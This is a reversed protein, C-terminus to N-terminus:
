AKGRKALQASARRLEDTLQEASPLLTQYRAALVKNPLGELAYHAQAAGKQSCLIIGVPPNEGERTWHAKAYNLYMHMQGADAHSFKGLKLDILVLCQLSRHYFVLDVRFWEDDLRLRKQRGVFAFDDGLELLFDELRHILAEELDSESYEDKLDLFELVYPDKVIDALGMSDEAKAVAGKSLMAKKNKSLLSREFFQSDIQRKLQRVSWGGRLAEHEYFQRAKEDAVSLLCVYASWPLPFARALNQLTLEATLTQRIPALTQTALAKRPPTKSISEIEFKASLTQLIKESPWGIHFARMQALNRVGFGRGFEATLDVALQRLLQEGYAARRKGKQEAELIRRGVEWYSATMVANVSRVATTRAQRLLDAIDTQLHQYTILSTMAPETKPTDKCEFAQSVDKCITLQGILICPFICHLGGEWVLEFM